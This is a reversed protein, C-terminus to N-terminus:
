SVVKMGFQSADIAGTTWAASTAPNEEFIESYNTYSSAINGTTTGPYDTNSVRLVPAITKDATDTKKAVINTQVGLVTSTVPDLDDFEYTDTLDPVAAQVYTTDGDHADEETVLAYNDANDNDSGVFGSSDGDASPRISQVRVQGLPANNYSGTLDIIYHDDFYFPNVTGTHVGTDGGLRYKTIYANATNQTDTTAALNIISVGDAYLQCEDTGISDNINFLLELYFYSNSPTQYTSTGLVTTNRLISLTRDSNHKVVLQPTTGDYTVILLQANAGPDIKCAVGICGTALNSGIAREIYDGDDTGELCQGYEFRTDTSNETLGTRAAWKATSVAQAASLNDFGDIFLLM